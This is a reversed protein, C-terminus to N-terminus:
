AAISAPQATTARSRLRRGVLIRTTVYQVAFLTLKSSTPVVSLFLAYAATDFRYAVVANATATLFMLGAWIFGFALPVDPAHENVVPPMYRSIWGPKLMVVGVAIYILSPTLKIFQANRTLLTATGFVIVLGLSMWQMLGVKKGLVKMLAVQAIGFGIGAGTAVFLNATLAFAAAFVLTSFLDAFFLLGANLLARM